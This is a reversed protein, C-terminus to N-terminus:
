IKRIRKLAFGLIQQNIRYIEDITKSKILHEQKTRDFCSAFSDCKFKDLM